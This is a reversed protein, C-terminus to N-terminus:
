KTKPKMYDLQKYATAKVEYAGRERTRWAYTGAGNPLEGFTHPAIMLELRAKIEKVRSEASRSAAKAAELEGHLALADDSLVVTAGDDDPHLRALAKRHSEINKGVMTPEDGSELCAIFQRELEVLAAEPVDARAISVDRYDNGGIIAVLAGLDVGPGITVLSHAVQLRYHDPATGDESWQALQRYGLFKAEVIQAPGGLPQVAVADLTTVMWPYRTSRIYPERGELWGLVECGGGAQLTAEVEERDTMIRVDRELAYEEIVIPQVKRGLRVPRLSGIDEREVIGRKEAYLRLPSSYPDEGVATAASSSGLVYEGDIKDHIALWEERSLDPATM